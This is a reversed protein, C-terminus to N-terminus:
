PKPEPSPDPPQRQTRALQNAYPLVHLGLSTLFLTRQADYEIQVAHSDIEIVLRLEACYFDVIYDGIPKKRLFKYHEFQKDRLVQKWLLTEAPTPNSRNERALVTLRKDYPLFKLGEGARGIAFTAPAVKGKDGLPIEQPADPSPTATEGRVLPAPPPPKKNMMEPDFCGHISRKM